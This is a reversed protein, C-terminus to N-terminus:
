PIVDPKLTLDIHSKVRFTDPASNALSLGSPDGASVYIFDHAACQLPQPAISYGITSLLLFWVWPFKAQTCLKMRTRVAQYAGFRHVQLALRDLPHSKM